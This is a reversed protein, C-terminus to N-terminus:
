DVETDIESPGPAPEVLRENERRRRRPGDVGVAIVDHGPVPADLRLPAPEHGADLAADGDEGPRKADGPGAARGAGRGRGKPLAGHVFHPRAAYAQADSPVLPQEIASAAPRAASEFLLETRVCQDNRLAGVSPMAAPIAADADIPHDVLAGHHIRDEAE